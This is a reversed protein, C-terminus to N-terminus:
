KAHRVRCSILSSRALVFQCQTGCKQNPTMQEIALARRCILIQQIPQRCSRLLMAVTSVSEDWVIKLLRGDELIIRVLGFIVSIM